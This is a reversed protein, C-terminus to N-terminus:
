IGVITQPLYLAIQPFLVLLVIMAAMAFWFPWIGNFIKRM